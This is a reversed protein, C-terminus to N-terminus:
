KNKIRFFDSGTGFVSLIPLIKLIIRNLNQIPLTYCKLLVIMCSLNQIGYICKVREEMPSKVSWFVFTRKSTTFIIKQIKKMPADAVFLQFFDVIKM